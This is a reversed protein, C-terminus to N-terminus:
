LVETVYLHRSRTQSDNITGGGLRFIWNREAQKCCILLLYKTRIVLMILKKFSHYMTIGHDKGVKVLELSTCRCPLLHDGMAEFEVRSTLSGTLEVVFKLDNTHRMFEMPQPDIRSVRM